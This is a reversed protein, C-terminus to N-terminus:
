FKQRVLKRVMSDIEEAAGDPFGDERLRIV